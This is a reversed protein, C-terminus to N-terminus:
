ERVVNRGNRYWREGHGGQERGGRPSNSGDRAAGGDVQKRGIYTRRWDAMPSPVHHTQYEMQTVKFFV